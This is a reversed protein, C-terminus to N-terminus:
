RSVLENAQVPADETSNEPDHSSSLISQQLELRRIRELEENQASLAEPNLDEVTDYKRKINRRHGPTSRKRRKKKTQVVDKENNKEEEEEIEEEEADEEEEQNSESSSSHEDYEM